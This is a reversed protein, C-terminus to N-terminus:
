KKALDSDAGYYTGKGKTIFSNVRAFGWQQQTAGPRHGTKWAAMGRNFVKKLTGYSVGSKEAKNKLATDIDEEIYEESFAHIRREVKSVWAASPKGSGKYYQLVKSPDKKSVLAWKGNVSKLVEDVQKTEENKNLVKIDNLRATDRMMNHKKRDSEKEKKIRDRIKDLEQGEGYIERYKKTHISEKTKASTDGPAPKYASPDKDSMKTQKKFQSHRKEKTSKSLGSYYGAPQTGSKDKIDPDQKKSNAEVIFEIFKHM